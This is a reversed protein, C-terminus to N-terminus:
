KRQGCRGDFGPMVSFTIAEVNDCPPLRWGCRQSIRLEMVAVPDPGTSAGNVPAIESLRRLWEDGHRLIL